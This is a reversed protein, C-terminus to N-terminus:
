ISSIFTDLIFLSHFDFTQMVFIRLKFMLATGIPWRLVAFVFYLYSRVKGIECHHVVPNDLDDFIMFCQACFPRKTHVQTEDNNICHMTLENDTQFELPCGDIGCVGGCIYKLDGTAM